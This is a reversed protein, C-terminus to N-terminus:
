ALLEVPPSSGTKGDSGLSALREVQRDHCVDTRMIMECSVIWPLCSRDKVELVLDAYTPSEGRTRLVICRDTFYLWFPLVTRNFIAVLLDIMGLYRDHQPMM